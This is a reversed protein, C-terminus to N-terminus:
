FFEAAQPIQWILDVHGGLSNCFLLDGPGKGLVQYAVDGDGISVYRIGPPEM